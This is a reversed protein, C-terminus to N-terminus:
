SNWIEWAKEAQLGLMPLGNITIAKKQVGYSLFTTEEPNYILDYLIHSSTIASYDLEPAVEVNPAMGLPTTNVIINHEAIERSSLQNYTFDVEVGEKRSVVSYQVGLKKLVWKVAKAAGGTGLVLAKSKKEKLVAKLPEEFGFVDTNFGKMKFTSNDRIIKITNVAGIEKAMSDIEDLLEMVTEKYPITVNLGVIEPSNQVLSKLQEINELEFNEYLCDSIGEKAFKETFYLHSFSHGIPYGILGFKRM